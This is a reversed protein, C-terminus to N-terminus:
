PAREEPAARPTLIRDLAKEVAGSKTVVYKIATKAMGRGQPTHLVHYGLYGAVIAATTKLGTM